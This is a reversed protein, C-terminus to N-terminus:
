ARAEQAEALEVRRVFEDELTGATPTFDAVTGSYLLKGGHVIALDDALATVESM